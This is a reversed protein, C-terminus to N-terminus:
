LLCVNEQFSFAPIQFWERQFRFSRGFTWKKQTGHTLKGPTYEMQNQYNESEGGFFPTFEMHSKDRALTRPAFNIDVASRWALHRRSNGANWPAAASTHAAQQCPGAGQQFTSLVLFLNSGMFNISNIFSILPFDYRIFLLGSMFATKDQPEPNTQPYHNAMKYTFSKDNKLLGKIFCAFYRFKHHHIAINRPPFM